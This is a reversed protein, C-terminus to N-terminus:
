RWSKLCVVTPSFADQQESSKNGKEGRGQKPDHSHKQGKLEKGVVLIDGAYQAWSLKLMIM